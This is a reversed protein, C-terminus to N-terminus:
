VRLVHDKCRFLMADNTGWMEPYLSELSSRHEVLLEGGYLAMDDLIAQRYVKIADIHDDELSLGCFETLAWDPEVKSSLWAAAALHMATGELAYFSPAPMVPLADIERLSGPCKMWRDSSSANRRAHAKGSEAM